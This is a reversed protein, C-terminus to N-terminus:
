PHFNPTFRKWYLIHKSMTISERCSVMSLGEQVTRHGPTVSLKRQTERQTQRDTQTQTQRDRDTETQRQRETETETETERETSGEGDGDRGERERLREGWGSASEREREGKGRERGGDKEGGGRVGARERERWMKAGRERKLASFRGYIYFIFPWGDDLSISCLFGSVLNAM